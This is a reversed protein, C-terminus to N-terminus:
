VTYCSSGTHYVVFKFWGKVIQSQQLWQPVGQKSEVLLNYLDKFVHQNKENLFSTATGLNGARGTRGIRHVYDDISNSMDYNIVDTVNPIDLGRSAVDSQPLCAFM